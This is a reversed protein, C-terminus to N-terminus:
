RPVPATPRRSWAPGGAPMPSCRPTRTPWCPWSRCGTPCRRWTASAPSRVSPPSSARAARRPARRLARAPSDDWDGADIDLLQTRSANGIETVLDDTRRAFHALLWADITGVCWEGSSTRTREPDHEDLLWGAKLASFMPDLPLGTRALVEPARGAQELATARDATRQDQWGLAPRWPAAPRGTGSCSRRASCASPSASSAARRVARHRLRPRQDPRQGLDGRRGAGGLRAPPPGPGRRGVAQAVVRGRPDVLM